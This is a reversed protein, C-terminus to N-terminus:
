ILSVNGARHEWQTKTISPSLNLKAILVMNLEVMGLQVIIEARPKTQKPINSM